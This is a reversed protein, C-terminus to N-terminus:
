NINPVIDIISIASELEGQGLRSEEVEYLITSKPSRTRLRNLRIMHDICETDVVMIRVENMLGSPSYVYYVLKEETLDDDQQLIKMTNYTSTNM